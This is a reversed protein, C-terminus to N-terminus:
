IIRFMNERVNRKMGRDPVGDEFETNAMDAGGMAERMRRLHEEDRDNLTPRKKDPDQTKKDHSQADASSTSTSSTIKAADLSPARSSSHLARRAPLRPFVQQVPKKITNLAKCCRLVHIKM